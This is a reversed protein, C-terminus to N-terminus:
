DDMEGRVGAPAEVVSRGEMKELREIRPKPLRTKKATASRAELIPAKVCEQDEGLRAGPGHCFGGV